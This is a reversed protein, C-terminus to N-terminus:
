GEGRSVPHSAFYEYIQILRRVYRHPINKFKQVVITYDKTFIDLICCNQVFQKSSSGCDIYVDDWVKRTSTDITQEVNPALLYRGYGAIVAHKKYQVHRYDQPHFDPYAYHSCPTVSWDGAYVFEIGRLVYGQKILSNYHRVYICAYIADGFWDADSMVGILERYSCDPRTLAYVPTTYALNAHVADMGLGCLYGVFYFSHRLLDNQLSATMHMRALPDSVKQIETDPVCTVLSEQLVYMDVAEKLLKVLEGDLGDRSLGMGYLTEFFESDPGSLLFSDGDVVRCARTPGDYFYLSMELGMLHHYLGASVSTKCAADDDGDKGDGREVYGDIADLAGLSMHTSIAKIQELLSLKLGDMPDTYQKTSAPHLRASRILNDLFGDVSVNNCHGYEICLYMCVYAHFGRQYHVQKHDGDHVIGSLMESLIRNLNPGQVLRNVARSVGDEARLGGRTGRATEIVADPTRSELDRRARSCLTYLHQLQQVNMMTSKSYEAHEPPSSSPDVAPRVDVLSTQKLSTRVREIRRQRAQCSPTLLFDTCVDPLRDFYWACNKLLWKKDVRPEEDRRYMYDRMVEYVDRVAGGGGGGESFRSAVQSTQKQSRHMRCFFCEDVPEAAECRKRLGAVVGADVAKTLGNLAARVTADSNSTERGWRPLRSRLRTYTEWQTEVDDELRDGYASVFARFPRNRTSRRAVNSATWWDVLLRDGFLRRGDQEICRRVMDFAYVQQDILFGYLPELDPKTDFNSAFIGNFYRILGRCDLAEADPDDVRHSLCGRVIDVARIQSRLHMELAFLCQAQEKLSQHGHSGAEVGYARADKVKAMTRHITDYLRKKHVCMAELVTRYQHVADAHFNDVLPLVRELLARNMVFEVHMAEDEDGEAGGCESAVDEEEPADM